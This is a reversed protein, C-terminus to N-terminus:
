PNLDPLRESCKQVSKLKEVSDQDGRLMVAGGEKCNREEPSRGCLTCHTISYHEGSARVLSHRHPARTAQVNPLPRHISFSKSKAFCACNVQAFMKHPYGTTSSQSDHSLLAMKNCTNSSPAVFLGPLKSDIASNM